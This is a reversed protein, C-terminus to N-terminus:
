RNPQTDMEDIVRRALGLSPRKKEGLALLDLARSFEFAAQYTRRLRPAAYATIATVEDEPLSFQRAQLHRGIIHQLLQEDPEAMIIRPMAELRTLLDQLGGAWRGPMERGSLVLRIQLSRCEDMLDFLGRPKDPDVIMNDVILLHNKAGEKRQFAGRVLGLAEEVTHLLGCFTCGQDQTLHAIVKLLYSKGSGEPGCIALRNEDSGLWSQTAVLIDKNSENSLFEEVSYYPFIGPEFLPIQAVSSTRCDGSIVNGSFSDPESQDASKKQREM